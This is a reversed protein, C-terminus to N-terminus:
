LGFDEPTHDNLFHTVREFGCDEDFTRGCAPCETMVISVKNMGPRRELAMKSRWTTSSKTGLTVGSM